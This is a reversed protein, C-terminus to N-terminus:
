TLRVDSMTLNGSGDVEMVRDIGGGSIITSAMGAGLITIDTQIDLDGTASGDENTGTITLTYTGAGLIITDAGAANNAAIIAERLSTVGDAGNIVDNTTTVTYTALVGEWAAQSADAVVISAEIAGTSAELIWNGFETAHGTRDTSAAVDAGTLQALTQMALQGAEGRGFNCGYVLIDANQSLSLGIQQFQEAYRTSISDQTLFSSGLHIEAETGEGILHIAAIGTRGALVEAIQAIGDRRGDLLVIEAEPNIGQLLVQYDAITSDVFVVERRQIAPPDYTSIADLLPDPPATGAHSTDHSADASMAADAQQKAVHEPALEAATAAAAADFMLRPELALLSAKVGRFRGTPRGKSNPAQQEM